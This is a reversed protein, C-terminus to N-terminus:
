PYSTKFLRLKKAIYKEFIASPGTVKTALVVQDRKGSKEFWTGIIEETKGNNAPTSPVAYMEATDFFNVGMDVAMDMQAHGESESNQEGFTMTGLCIESVEIDTKSLKNYKM